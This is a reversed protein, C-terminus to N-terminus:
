VLADEAVDMLHIPSLELRTCLAALEEAQERRSFLNAVTYEALIRGSPMEVVEIGYVTHPIQDEDLVQDERIRYTYQICM